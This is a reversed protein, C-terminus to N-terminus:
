IYVEEPNLYKCYVEKNVFSPPLTEVMEWYDAISVLKVVCDEDLCDRNLKDIYKDVEMKLDEIKDIEFIVISEEFVESKITSHELLLKVSLTMKM